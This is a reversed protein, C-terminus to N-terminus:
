RLLFCAAPHKDAAGMEMVAYESVGGSSQNYPRKAKGEFESVARPSMNIDPWHLTKLVSVWIQPRKTGFRQARM